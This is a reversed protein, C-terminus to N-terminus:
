WTRGPRTSSEELGISEIVLSRSVWSQFSTMKWRQHTLEKKVKTELQKRMVRYNEMLM